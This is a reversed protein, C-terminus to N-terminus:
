KRKTTVIKCSLGGVKYEKVIEPKPPEPPKIPEIGLSKKLEALANVMGGEKLEEKKEETDIEIKQAYKVAQVIRKVSQVLGLLHMPRQM